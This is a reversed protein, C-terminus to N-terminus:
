NEWKLDIQVCFVSLFMKKPEKKQNKSQNLLQLYLTTRAEGSLIERGCDVEPFLLMCLNLSPAWYRKNTETSFAEPEAGWRLEELSWSFNCSTATLRLQEAQAAETQNMTSILCVQLHLHLHTVDPDPSFTTEHLPDDGVRRRRYHDCSSLAAPTLPKSWVGGRAGESPKGRLCFLLNSQKHQKLAGKQKVPKIVKIKERIKNWSESRSCLRQVETFKVFLRFLSSWSCSM